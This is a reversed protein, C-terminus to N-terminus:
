LIDEPAKILHMSLCIKTACSYICTGPLDNNWLLYGEFSSGAQANSTAEACRRHWHAPVRSTPCHSAASENFRADRLRRRVLPWSARRRSGLRIEPLNRSPRIPIPRIEASMVLELRKLQGLIVHLLTCTATCHM